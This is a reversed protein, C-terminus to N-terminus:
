NILFMESCRGSDYRVHLLLVSRRLASGVVASPGFTQGETPLLPFSMWDSRFDAPGVAWM